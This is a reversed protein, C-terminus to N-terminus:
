PESLSASKLQGATLVDNPVRKGFGTGHTAQGVSGVLDGVEVEGPAVEEAASSAM